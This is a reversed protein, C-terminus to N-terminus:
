IMFLIEQPLELSREIVLDDGVGNNRDVVFL